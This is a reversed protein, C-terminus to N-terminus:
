DLGLCCEHYVCRIRLRPVLCGRLSALHIHLLDTNCLQLNLRLRFLLWRASYLLSFEALKFYGLLSSQDFGLEALLFCLQWLRLSVKHGKSTNSIWSQLFDSFMIFIKVLDLFHLADDFSHLLPGRLFWSLEHRSGVGALVLHLCSWAVFCDTIRVVLVSDHSAFVWLARETWGGGVGHCHISRFVEVFTLLAHRFYARTLLELFSALDQLFIFNASHLILWWENLRSFLIFRHSLDRLSQHLSGTLGIAIRCWAILWIIPASNACWKM